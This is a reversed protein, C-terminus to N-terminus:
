VGCEWCGGSSLRGLSLHSGRLGQAPTASLGELTGAASSAQPWLQERRSRQVRHCSSSFKLQTSLLAM